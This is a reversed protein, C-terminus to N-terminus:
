ERHPIFYETAANKGVPANQRWYYGQPDKGSQGDRQGQGRYTELTKKSLNRISAAEDLSVWRGASEDPPATSQPVVSQPELYVSLRKIHEVILLDGPTPEAHKVIAPEDTWDIPVTEGVVELPSAQRNGKGTAVTYITPPDASVAVPPPTTRETKKTPSASKRHDRITDALHTAERIPRLRGDSLRGDELKKRLAAFEVSSELDNPLSDTAKFIPYYNGTYSKQFQKQLVDFEENTLDEISGIAGLKQHQVDDYVLISYDLPDAIMAPEKLDAIWSEIEYLVGNRNGRFDYDDYGDATEYADVFHKLELDDSVSLKEKKYLIVDFTENGYRKQLENEIVKVLELTLTGEIMTAHTASKPKGKETRYILYYESM